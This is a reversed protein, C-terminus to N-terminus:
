RGRRGREWTWRGEKACYSFTIRPGPEFDKLGEAVDDLFDDITEVWPPSVYEGCRICHFADDTYIGDDIYKQAMKIVAAVDYWVPLPEDFGTVAPKGDVLSVIIDYDDDDSERGLVASLSLWLYAIEDKCATCRM